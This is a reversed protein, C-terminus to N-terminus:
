VMDGNRWMDATSPQASIPQASISDCASSQAVNWGWYARCMLAAGDFACGAFWFQLLSWTSLAGANGLFVFGSVAFVGDSAGVILGIGCLDDVFHVNTVTTVVITLDDANDVTAVSDAAVTLLPFTADLASSV